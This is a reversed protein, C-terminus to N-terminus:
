SGNDPKTTYALHKRNYILIRALGAGAALMVGRIMPNSNDGTQPADTAAELITQEKTIEQTLAEDKFYKGCCECSWYETKGPATCTAPIVDHKTM